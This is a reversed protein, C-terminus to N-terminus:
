SYSIYSHGPLSQQWLNYANQLHIEQTFYFRKHLHFCQGMRFLLLKLIQILYVKPGVRVELYCHNLNVMQYVCPQIKVKEPVLWNSQYSQFTVLGFNNQVQGYCHYAQSKSFLAQWAHQYKHFQVQGCHFNGAM